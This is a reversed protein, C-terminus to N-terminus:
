TSGLTAPAGISDRACVCAVLVCTYVGVGRKRKGVHLALSAGSGHLSGPFGSYLGDDM